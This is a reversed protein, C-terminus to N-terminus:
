RAVTGPVARAHDRAGFRKKRAALAIAGLAFLSYTAPEPVAAVSVGDLYLFGPDDRFNFALTSSSSTATTVFTELLFGPTAAPNTISYLLDNGFMASFAAPAGGDYQVAFSVQYSQGVTTSFTQSLSGAADSTGLFASCNGEFVSAGPGPCTVGSFMSDGAMSWSSFSSSEFGGNVISQASAPQGVTAALALPASACMFRIIRKSM